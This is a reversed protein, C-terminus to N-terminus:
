RFSQRLNDKGFPQELKARIRPDLDGLTAKFREQAAKTFAECVTPHRYHIPDPAAVASTLPYESATIARDRLSAEVDM